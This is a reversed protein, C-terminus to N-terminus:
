RYIKGRFITDLTHSFLPTQKFIGIKYRRFFYNAFFFLFLPNFTYGQNIGNWQEKCGSLHNNMIIEFLFNSVLDRIIESM